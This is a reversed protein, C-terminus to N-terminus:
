SSPRPVLRHSALSSPMTRTSCSTSVGTVMGKLSFAHNMNPLPSFGHKIMQERLKEHWARAAQKLGYLAKHLIWIKGGLESPLKLYVENSLDGNLFATRVDLQEVDLNASSAHALMIRLTAQQATPAFVDEYDRGAIQRFGKVVLRAKYKEINGLDDRKITFVFKSPLAHAGAPLDVESYVSKTHLAALEENIASLWHEKDPRAMAERYTAPNDTLRQVAVTTHLEAAKAEYWAASPQRERHPYRRPVPADDLPQQAANHTADEELV